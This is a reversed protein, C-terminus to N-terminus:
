RWKAKGKGGYYENSDGGSSAQGVSSPSSNSQGSPAAASTSFRRVPARGSSAAGYNNNYSAGGYSEVRQHFDSGRSMNIPVENGPKSTYEHQRQAALYDARDVAAQLPAMHKEAQRIRAKLESPNAPPRNQWKAKEYRDRAASKQEELWEYRVKGPGHRPKIWGFENKLAQDCERVPRYQDAKWTEYQKSRTKYTSIAREYTLIQNKLVSLQNRQEESM